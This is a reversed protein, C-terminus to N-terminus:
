KKSDAHKIILGQGTPLELISHNRESMFAFEAMTQASNIDWGFDDLVIVGGPSVRDFLKELAMIEAMASNMDIHLFAIKKPCDVDFSFPVVGKVVRVNSYSAFKELVERYIADFDFQSYDWMKREGETSTQDSLGEFSDYLFATKDINSFNLYRFIVSSCFGKFVGCEVFDGDVCLANRAAWTLTHLRWILSKEQEGRAYFNFADIFNKDMRFSLNRGLLVMNDGFYSRNPYIDAIKKLAGQLDGFKEKPYNYFM